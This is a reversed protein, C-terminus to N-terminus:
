ACPFSQLAPQQLKLSANFITTFTQVLTTALTWAWLSTSGDETKRTEPSRLSRPGEDKDDETPRRGRPQSLDDLEINNSM